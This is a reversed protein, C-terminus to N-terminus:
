NEILYSLAMGALEGIALDPRQLLVNLQPAGAGHQAKIVTPEVLGVADSRLAQRPRQSNGDIRVVNAVRV